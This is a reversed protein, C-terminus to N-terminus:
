AVREREREGGRRQRKATVDDAAAAADGDTGSKGSRDNEIVRVDCGDHLVVRVTGLTRVATEVTGTGSMTGVDAAAVAGGRAGGANKLLGMPVLGALKLDDGSWGFYCGTEAWGEAGTSGNDDVETFSPAPPPAACRPEPIVIPTASLAASAPPMSTIPGRLSSLVCEPLPKIGKPRHNLWVNGLFTVRTENGGERGVVSAAGAEKGDENEEAHTRASRGTTTKTTTTTMTEGRARAPPPSQSHPMMTRLVGHLLRGDFAIHKGVEPFSTCVATATPAAPLDPPASHGHRALTPVTLNEFVVTPAQIARSNGDGGGQDGAGAGAGTLYTVTSLHPHVFIGASIRLEEDKDWHMKLSPRSQVWWEIGSTDKDFDESDCSSTHFQFISSALEELACRPTDVANAGLWFTPGGSMLPSDVLLSDRILDDVTVVPNEARVGPSDAPPPPPLPVFNKWARFTYDLGDGTGFVRGDGGLMVFMGEDDSESEDM